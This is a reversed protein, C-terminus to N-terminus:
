AYVRANYFPAMANLVALEFSRTRDIRGGTLLGWAGQRSRTDTQASLTDMVASLELGDDLVRAAVRAPVEIAGGCGYGGRSGDTVYAWSMLFARREGAPRVVELGGELGVALDAARGEGRVASLAREARERAGGLLQDLSVPMSPTSHVVDRAALEADELATDHEALAALVRRVAEVKPARTSGLAVLV